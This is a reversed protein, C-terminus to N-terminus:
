VGALKTRLKAPIGALAANPDIALGADQAKRIAKIKACVLKTTRETADGMDVTRRCGSADSFQIRRSEQIVLREETARLKMAPPSGPVLGLSSLKARLRDPATALWRSTKPDPPAQEAASKLLREVASRAGEFERRAASATPASGLYIDIRKNAADRFRLRGCCHFSIAAM